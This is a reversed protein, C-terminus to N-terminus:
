CFSQVSLRSEWPTGAAQSRARAGSIFREAIEGSLFSRERTMGRRNALADPWLRDYEPEPSPGRV